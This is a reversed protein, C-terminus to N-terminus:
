GRVRDCGRSAARKPVELVEFKVTTGFRRGTADHWARREQLSGRIRTGREEVARARLIVASERVWTVPTGAVVTCALAPASAFGITGLVAIAIAVRMQSAGIDKYVALVGVISRTM